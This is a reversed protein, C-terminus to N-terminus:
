GAGIGPLRRVDHAIVLGAEDDIGCGFGESSSQFPEPVMASLGPLHPMANSPRELENAASAERDLATDAM